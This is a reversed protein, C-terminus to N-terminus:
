RIGQFVEEQAKGVESETYTGVYEFGQQQCYEKGVKEAEEFTMEEKLRGQVVGYSAKYLTIYKDKM